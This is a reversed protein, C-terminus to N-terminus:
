LWVGTILKEKKERSWGKLQIERKRASSKDVFPQSIYLLKFAGQDRTMKSGRGTNHKELRAIPDPSIGVYYHHAKSECIYVYWKMSPGKSLSLTM